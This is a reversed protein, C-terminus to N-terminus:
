PTGRERVAKDLADRIVRAYSRPLGKAPLIRRIKGGKARGTSHLAEPGTIQLLVTRGVYTAVLAQGANRLPRAGDATPEWAKGDPDTGAAVQTEVTRALAEAALPAAETTLRALRRLDAIMDQITSM